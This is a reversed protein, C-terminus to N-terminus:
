DNFSDGIVKTIVETILEVSHRDDGWGNIMTTHIKTAFAIILPKMIMEIIDNDDDDIMRAATIAEIILETNTRMRVADRFNNNFDLADAIRDTISPFLPM